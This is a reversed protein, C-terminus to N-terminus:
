ELIRVNFSKTETARPSLTRIGEKEALIGNHYISDGIGLWPEFCVFPAGPKAWIGLYDFDAFELTLVPGRERHVLSVEKSKLNKFILADGDFLHAHIPIENSNNLLMAGEDGILGGPMILWTHDNEIEPFGIKYDELQEGPLLPCAFAPHGGLSYFMDQTGINSVQHSVELVKGSLRFSVEFSFEFPYNTLSEPSSEMKLVIRDAEHIVLSVRDSERVIGHREMEYEKGQHSTKGGKLAGVIPFLVPAQGNWHEPDGQWLYEQGTLKSKISSIEM